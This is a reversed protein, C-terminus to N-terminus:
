KALALFTRALVNAGQAVAEFTAFEDPSHSIGERCPIFTMGIPVNTGDSRRQQALYVCDHIGGSPLGVVSYGLEKAAAFQCEQIHEDLSELPETNSIQQMETTVGFRACTEDVCALAQAAYNDRFAKERSRIDLSFYGFGSVKTVGNEHVKPLDTNIQMDSNILGITQVLDHGEAMAKEAMKDLAVMTYGLALNVDKRYQTGMPTGGSHDFRGELTIQWRVPGRISSVVGIEVEQQELANAQEIHLEIHAVISLLEDASMTPRCEAIPESRYGFKKIAQALTQGRFSKQLTSAPLTGMAARSGKCGVVYTASEEGRWVRLRLGHQTAQKEQLIARIASLGAIIGAAGDFNGGRVVTDLHSGCEVYTTYGKQELIMNGIEDFRTTLGISEGLSRIYQFAQEEEESWSARLFGDEWRTGLAGITFLPRYVDEIENATILNM